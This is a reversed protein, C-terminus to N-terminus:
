LKKLNWNHRNFSAPFAPLLGSIGSSKISQLTALWGYCSPHGLKGLTECGFKARAYEALVRILLGNTSAELLQLVLCSPLRMVLNPLERSVGQM